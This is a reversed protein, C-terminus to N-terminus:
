MDASGIVAERVIVVPTAANAATFTAVSGLLLGAVGHDGRAGVAILSAGEGREVLVARAEGKVVETTVHAREGLTTEVSHQLLHDGRDEPDIWDFEDGAYAPGVDHDYVHLAVIPSDTARGAWGLAALSEQSGDVGVIVPGTAALDANAPVVVVPCPAAAAIRRSVSGLLVSALSSHGRSGVVVLDADTSQDRLVEVPHGERVVETIPVETDARLPDLMTRLAEITAADMQETPPVPAGGFPAPLMALMPYEWSMVAQISAGTREAWNIAWRLAHDAGLSGDFGVVIVPDSM